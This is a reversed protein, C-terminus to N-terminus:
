LRTHLQELYIQFFHGFLLLGRDLVQFHRVEDFVLDTNILITWVLLYSNILRSDNTHGQVKDIDHVESRHGLEQQLILHIIGESYDLETGRLTVLHCRSVGQDGRHEDLSDDLVFCGLGEVHYFM